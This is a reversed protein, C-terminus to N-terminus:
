TTARWATAGRLLHTLQFQAWVILGGASPTAGRLLHTLQFLRQSRAACTGCM